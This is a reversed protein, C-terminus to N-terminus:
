QKMAKDIWKWEKMMKLQVDTKDHVMTPITLSAMGFTHHWHTMIALSPFELKEEELLKHYISVHDHSTGADIM